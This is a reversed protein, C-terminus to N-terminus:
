SNYKIFLNTITDHIIIVLYKNKIMNYNINNNTINIIKKIRKNKNIKNKNKNKNIKNRCKKHM